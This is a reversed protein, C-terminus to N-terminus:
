LVVAGRSRKFGANAPVGARCVYADVALAWLNADEASSLWGDSAFQKICYSWTLPRGVGCVGVPQWALLRKSWRDHSATVTKRLFNWKRTRHM